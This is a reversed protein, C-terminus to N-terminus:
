DEVAAKRSQIASLRAFDFKPRRDFFFIGNQEQFVDTLQTYCYGFMRPNDLLVDCLGKFRTYFEEVTRPRIGYGWSGTRNNSELDANAPNWWAGGFESVFYPQGGYPINWKSNEPGNQFPTDNAIPAQRIAFKEPDQEYDHSDYIDAETVRHAYGSTDLVPRTTDMNKTAIFLGRLVDDLSQMYDEINQCCENMPCWGIIAPHSYDRELTEMWQCLMASGPEHHLTDDIHNALRNASHMYGWDGYEGWVLYGMCDAHYLFREEFVKQHLRAGNFGARMSLSIDKILAEDTPATLIGDIYHGQDLVLRQFVSKGNILIKYGDIAVSRLGAYTSAKDILFGNADTLELDIDYLQGDGPQWLRVRDEPIAMNLVVAFDLGTTASTTCVIGQSDKVTATVTWGAKPATIPLELRFSKDTLNPTVKPRNFHTKPVPEMWVTQWIGTTRTYRCGSNAYVVAQKGGPKHWDRPDRARLVITAKGGLKSADGLNCTFGTFGGRHRGVEQGNVWVTAEYDVAQFHLLIESDNWEEPIAVERRYWVAEMFDVHEVGSLKSEPCFPVIIRDKLNKECLGREKGTDAYDIEFEWEGNLNMWEKRVFQPRPYEPRPITAM